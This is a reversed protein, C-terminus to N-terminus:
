RVWMNMRDQQAGDAALVQRDQASGCGQRLKHGNGAAKVDAATTHLYNMMVSAWRRHWQWVIHTAEPHNSPNRIVENKNLAVIISNQLAIAIQGSVSDAFVDSSASAPYQM